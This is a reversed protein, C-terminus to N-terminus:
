NYIEHALHEYIIIVCDRSYLTQELLLAAIGEVSITIFYVMMLYAHLVRVRYYKFQKLKKM